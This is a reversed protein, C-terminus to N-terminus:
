EYFISTECIIDNSVEENKDFLIFVMRYSHQWLIKNEALNTSKKTRYLFFLGYAKCFFYKAYIKLVTFVAIM